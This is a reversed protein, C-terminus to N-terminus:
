SYHPEHEQEILLQAYLQCAAKKKQYTSFSGTRMPRLSETGLEGTGVESMLHLASAM